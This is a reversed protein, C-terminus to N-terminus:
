FSYSAGIAVVVSQGLDLVSIKGNAKNVAQGATQFQAGAFLGVQKTLAYEINGGAYGGALFDTSSGSGRRTETGVGDITVAERFSFHTDGVVLYLGGSFLLSFKNNLPVEAYPGFRLSVVNADITREGTVTAASVINTITRTFPDSGIVPGPGGYTGSYPYQPVVFGSPLAFSDVTQNVTTTLTRSDGISLRTYGVAGEVGFRWGSDTGRYLERDYTIEFGHQPDDSNNKSVGNNLSSSSSVVLSNGQISNPDTFGWYWTTNEFGPGHNNGDIDRGIFAGGDYTRIVTNTAPDAHLNPNSLADFGGLKKFDATINLGMRYSISIRNRSDAQRKELPVVPVSDGAAPPPTQATLVPSTLAATLIIGCRLLNRKM